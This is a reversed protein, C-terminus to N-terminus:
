RIGPAVHGKKKIVAQLDRRWGTGSRKEEVRSNEMDFTTQHHKTGSKVAHTVGM